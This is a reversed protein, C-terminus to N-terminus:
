DTSPRARRIFPASWLLFSPCHLHPLHPPSLLFFILLVLVIFHSGCLSLFFSIIAIISFSVLFSGLPAIRKRRTRAKGERGGRVAPQQQQHQHAPSRDHHHRLRHHHRLTASQTARSSSAAPPSPPPSHPLFLRTTLARHPSGLSRSRSAAPVSLSCSPVHLRSSLFLLLSFRLWSSSDVEVAPLCPVAHPPEAKRALIVIIDQSVAYQLTHFFCLSCAPVVAPLALSPPFYHLISLLPPLLPHHPLHCLTSSSSPSSSLWRTMM